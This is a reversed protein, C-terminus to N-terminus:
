AWGFLSAERRAVCFVAAFGFGFGKSLFEFSGLRHPPSLTHPSASLLCGFTYGNPQHPRSSGRGSPPRVYKLRATLDSPLMQPQPMFQFPCIPLPVIVGVPGCTRLGTM